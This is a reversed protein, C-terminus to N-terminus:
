YKGNLARESKVRLVAKARRKSDVGKVANCEVGRGEKRDFLEAGM